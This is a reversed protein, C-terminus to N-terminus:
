PGVPDPPPGDPAGLNAARTYFELSRRVLLTAKESGWEHLLTLARAEAEHAGRLDGSLFLALARNHFCPWCTRGQRCADASSALAADLNGTVIQHAAVANLQIATRATQSLDRVLETVENSKARHLWNERDGQWYLQLLGHLYEPERPNRQLAREFDQKAKDHQGTLAHHRGSWFWVSAEDSLALARDLRERTQASETFPELRALLLLVEPESLARRGISDPSAPAKAHHQRWRTRKNAYALFDRDLTARHEGHVLRALAAGKEESPPGALAKRFAEAYPHSEHMLMHVLLWASGYHRARQERQAVNLKGHADPENSYFAERDMAVLASARPLTEGKLHLYQGCVLDGLGDAKCMSRPDIEGLVPEGREGRIAQYYEALGENLWPPTPGLAVHNFRHTLEHAFLVRTAPSLSGSALITPMPEADNPLRTVYIGSVDDGVFPRLDDREAFVVVHTHFAPISGSGFVARGLLAYTEELGAVVRRAAPEDLDTALTFHPTSLELWPRGDDPAAATARTICGSGALSFLAACLLVWGSITRTHRREVARSAQGM